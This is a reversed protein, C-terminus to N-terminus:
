LLASLLSAPVIFGRHSSRAIKRNSECRSTEFRCKNMRRAVGARGGRRTQERRRRRRRCGLEQMKLPFPHPSNNETTNFWFTVVPTPLTRKSTTAPERAGEHIAKSNKGISDGFRISKRIKRPSGKM